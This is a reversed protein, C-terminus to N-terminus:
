ACAQHEEMLGARVIRAAAIAQGLALGGDNCPVRRHLLVDLGASSLARAARDTLLANQFVGGTLAVRRIGTQQAIRAAVDGIMAAVGQHFAAAIAPSPFGAAVDCVLARILPAADITWPDARTSLDFTYRDPGPGGALAELEMAAQGEFACRDRVGILAAVADFLRGVSSTALGTGQGAARRVVAFADSPIRRAIAELAADCARGAAMAHAVAMRWPERAARDGGPQAVYSLHAARRCGTGEVVLFEGGWVAGDTGLGAGDFAVGIVPESTGREAACSLVHAHHHQVAVHHRAAMERAFRTSLYEPHLDHAVVQPDIGLLRRYHAIGYSLAEYAAFSELDGVHPSPYARSGEVICFANKLHGGTALIALPAHEALAIAGPAYGRARRQVAPAGNVISVISDDCRIHIPRDHVLFLDAIEGLRTLAEEDDFAIPDDSANGSTMVLPRGGEHLLLHHLPTYPLMVGVAPCGPAVAPSVGPEVATRWAHRDVLVIPREPSM